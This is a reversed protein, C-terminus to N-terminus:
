GLGLLLFLLLLWRAARAARHQAAAGADVGAGVRRVAAAAAPRAWRPLGAGAAGALCPAAGAVALQASGRADVEVVVLRMAACAADRAAAAQSALAALAAANLARLAAGVTNVGPGVIPMAAPAAGHTAGAPAAFAPLADLRRLAGAVEIAAGAGAIEDASVAAADTSRVSFADAIAIAGRSAHGPLTIGAAGPAVTAAQAIMDATAIEAGGEVADGERNAM